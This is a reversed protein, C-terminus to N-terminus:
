RCPGAWAIQSWAHVEEFKLTLAIVTKPLAGIQSVHQIMLPPITGGHGSIRSPGRPFGAKSDISFQQPPEDHDRAEAWPV